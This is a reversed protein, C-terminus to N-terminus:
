EESDKKFFDRLKIKDLIVMGMAVEYLDNERIINRKELEKLLSEYGIFARPVKAILTEGAYVKCPYAAAERIIYASTIENWDYSRRPLLFIASTIGKEDVIIRKLVCYLLFLLGIFVPIVLSLLLVIEDAMPNDSPKAQSMGWHLFFGIAIWFIGIVWYIIGPKIVIRNNNTDFSGM